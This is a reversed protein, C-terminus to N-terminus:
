KKTLAPKVSLTTNGSKAQPVHGIFALGSVNDVLTLVISSDNFNYRKHQVSVIYLNGVEVENIRFQGNGDSRVFQFTGTAANTVTVLANRIAYGDDTRVQGEITANARTPGKIRAITPDLIGINQLQPLSDNPPTDIGFISTNTWDIADSKVTGVIQNGRALTQNYLTQGDPHPQGGPGLLNITTQVKVQIRGGVPLFAGPALLDSTSDDGIGDYNANRTAAAGGSLVTVINSGPVLTLNGTLVGDIASIEDRINFNTVDVPSNNVYDITWELTDGAVLTPGGVRDNSRRVSKYGNVTAQQLGCSTPRVVPVFVANLLMRQGNLRQIASAGSETRTYDHGGLEFVVGGPNAPGNIESVTAVFKESHAGSNRVSIRNGNAPGAGPAYAYETIAGDQNALTGIFQNFPMAGEPYVLSTNVATGDNTGFVSYGPLTTQFHGNPNNEFTNISACQLFLNGGTQVFQRYVGVFASSTSHAQTALTYCSTPQILDDTVSDYNTIGAANFVTQHVGDGFGGGDPGIAIKPKHTLNYRIDALADANTKYVVVPTGVSNFNTILSRLTPTDYEPAIIFSGGSFNVTAPGAVGATGNIRTVNASFDVDDKAKGPKIAWKVPINNQLFQNALGYARLNFTTGAANGQNVNDMPIILAGTAINEPPPPVSPPSQASVTLALLCLVFIGALANGALKRVSRNEFHINM